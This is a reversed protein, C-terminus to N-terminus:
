MYIKKKKCSSSIAKKFFSISNKRCFIVMLSEFIFEIDSSSYIFNSCSFIFSFCLTAIKFLTQIILSM